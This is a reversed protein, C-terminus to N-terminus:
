GLATWCLLSAPRKKKAADLRIMLLSLLLFGFYQRGLRVSPAPSRADGDHLHPEQVEPWERHGFVQFAPPAKVLRRQCHKSTRRLYNAGPFLLIRCQDSRRAQPADGVEWPRRSKAGPGTVAVTEEPRADDVCISRAQPEWARKISNLRPRASPSHGCPELASLAQSTM